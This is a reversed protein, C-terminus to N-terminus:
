HHRHRERHEEPQSSVRGPRVPHTPPHTSWAAQTVRTSLEDQLRRRLLARYSNDDLVEVLQSTSLHRGLREEPYARAWELTATRGHLPQPLAAPEYM